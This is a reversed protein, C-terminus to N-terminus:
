PALAARWEADARGVIPTLIQILFAIPLDVVRSWHMVVGAPPDLRYQTLDFWGQGALLDRVEVLRMYDDTEMQTFTPAGGLLGSVTVAAWAILVLPALKLGASETAVPALPRAAPEALSM